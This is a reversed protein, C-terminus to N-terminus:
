PRVGKRKWDERSTLWRSCGVEDVLREQRAAPHWSSETKGTNVLVGSHIGTLEQNQRLRTPPASPWLQLLPNQCCLGWPSLFLPCPQTSECLQLLYPMNLKKTGTHRPKAKSSLAKLYKSVEKKNNNTHGGLRVLTIKSFQMHYLQTKNNNTQKNTQLLINKGVANRIPASKGLVM